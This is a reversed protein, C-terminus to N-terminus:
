SFSNYVDFANVSEKNPYTIDSDLPYNTGFLGNILNIIVLNSLAFIRKFIKDYIKHIEKM